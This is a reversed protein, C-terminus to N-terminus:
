QIGLFQLGAIEDTRELCGPLLDRTRRPVMARSVPTLGCADQALPIPYDPRRSVPSRRSLLPAPPAEITTMQVAARHPPSRQAARSSRHPRLGQITLRTRDAQREGRLGDPRGPAPM